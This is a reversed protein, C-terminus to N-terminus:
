TCRMDVLHEANSLADTMANVLPRLLAELEGDDTLKKWDYLNGGDERIEYGLRM